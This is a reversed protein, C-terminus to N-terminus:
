RFSFPSFDTQISGMPMTSIIDNANIVRGIGFDTQLFSLAIVKVSTFAMICFRQTAQWEAVGVSSTCFTAGLLMINSVLSFIKFYASRMFWRATIVFVMGCPFLVPMVWSSRSAIAQQISFPALASYPKQKDPTFFM